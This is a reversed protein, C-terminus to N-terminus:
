RLVTANAALTQMVSYLQIWKASPCASEFLVLETPCLLPSTRDTLESGRKSSVPKLIYCNLIWTLTLGSIRVEDVWKFSVISLYIWLKSYTLVVVQLVFIQKALLM